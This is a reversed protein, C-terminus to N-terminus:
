QSTTLGQLEAWETWSGDYITKSKHGALSSALLIICATLGSGCSFVLQDHPLKKESFITKLEEVTKFKGETLVEEFPVNVSGPIHGSKLGKRPEPATGEFRGSSRADLVCFTGLEINELIEEYNKIYDKRLTAKFNGRKDATTATTDTPYDMKKWEPLGGDLVAVDEHGMAKFMWWVRPSSYVGKSDYVVVKHDADIGLKQCEQEFQAESPLTNPFPSKQDSFRNKLDFFLAGPITDATNTTQSGTVPIMSADLVILKDKSIHDRLWKASVISQM